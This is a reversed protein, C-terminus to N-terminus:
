GQKIVPDDLQAQRMFAQEILAMQNRQHWASSGEAPSANRPRGIYRLPLKRELMLSILYPRVFEWAGMNEPEEQAWVVELLNPYTRLVKRLDEQPFPYLQEVRVIALDPRAARREDTALDVYLKGSCLLLRQVAAREAADPDDIVPHWRGEAFETLPSSVKPHRLLSKPTLVILPLPDSKLLLAQRRLLHFYQAATTPNAIRLNTEAALQLFREPRASSHDPGAGEYGHPLLLVLSPTQGWKARASVIFEDIIVQAGNDFDGYQAEWLVLREPAQVNYGYEFGLAAAESLPSNHIEFAAKAQPLAQLPVFREGTHVDHFVAHRQSFTGRQVDQGTMRIPTGDELISALALSEAMSWDILPM